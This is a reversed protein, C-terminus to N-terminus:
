ICVIAVCKHSFIWLFIQSVIDHIFEPKTGNLDKKYEYINASIDCNIYIKYIYMDILLNNICKHKFEKINLKSM